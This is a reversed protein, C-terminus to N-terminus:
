CEEGEADEDLVEDLSSLRSIETKAAKLPQCAEWGKNTSM